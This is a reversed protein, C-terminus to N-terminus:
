RLIEVLAVMNLGSEALVLNGDTTPMMNRVVGGGGPIKWTQFVKTQPDFRVLANPKTASEVYWIVGKSYTIAYPQSKPGSPSPWEATAGTKPDLRGLYGRSYDSYWIIDDKDIAVRRPRTDANPLLYEHIAMTKPDISAVKNSGFEVFFPVGKTTVVMGYPNSRPTPSTVVKVEGTKPDLRGVMNAGQVTFWLTGAQDFIPTHPDRAGAPLTYKTVAATQPDLKGIYGKSNATFWINGSKDAVLGHPGSGEIPLTYEKIQGTRTDVRGLKNSFQGTYWLAGDPTALPDHPRSGKTPLSWEKFVVSVNGPIIVAPPKPKEPFHAALYETIVEMNNRPLDVMTSIVQQWEQKSYGDNVIMNLSHCRACTAQVLEKGTGDPLNVPAGGRRGQGEASAFVGLILGVTVVSSWVINRTM